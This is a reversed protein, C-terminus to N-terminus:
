RHRSDIAVRHLHEGLKRPQRRMPIALIRQCQLLHDPADSQVYRCLSHLAALRHNRTPVSVHRDDQLHDLFAEVLPM